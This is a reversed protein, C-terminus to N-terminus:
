ACITIHKSGILSEIAVIRKGRIPIFDDEQQEIFKKAEEHQQSKCARKIHGINDCKKCKIDPMWWCKKRLHNTKKCYSCPPYTKKNNNNSIKDEIKM